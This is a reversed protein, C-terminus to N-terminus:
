GLLFALTLLVCLHGNAFLHSGSGGIGNFKIFVETLHVLAYFVLAWKQMAYSAYMALATTVGGAAAVWLGCVRYIMLQRHTMEMKFGTKKLMEQPYIMLGLIGFALMGLSHYILVASVLM